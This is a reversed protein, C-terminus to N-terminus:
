TPTERRMAEASSRERNRRKTLSALPVNGPPKMTRVAASPAGSSSIRASTSNESAGSFVGACPSGRLAGEIGHM